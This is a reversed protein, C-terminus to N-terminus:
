EKWVFRFRLQKLFDDPAYDDQVGSVFESGFRLEGSSESLKKLKTLM